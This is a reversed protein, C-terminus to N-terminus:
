REAVFSLPSPFDRYGILAGFELSWVGFVSWTGVELAAIRRFTKSSSTQSKEPAQHKPNPTENEWREGSAWGYGKLAGRERAREGSRLSFTNQVRHLGDQPRM